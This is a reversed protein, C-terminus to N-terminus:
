TPKRAHILFSPTFIGLEGGEVLADAAVNLTRAAESAGAPAIRIRELARTLLATFARGAPIRAFSSLSFDRGQLAMYWPSAPDGHRAQQDVAEIVEFGASQVADVYEGAIALEPTANAREIRERIENHRSNSVDFADTLCWDVIAAEAGPKLLRHFERFALRRNPAHCVAEFSYLADFACDPLPVDMFDAHLLRCSGSLGARQLRNQGRRIQYDNLNVGTINAGTAQAIRILPGGVGCGIDGVEMGPGLGLLQGIQEEHRQQSARLSEGPQRPSFHFSQGWAIEYFMTVVDYYRSVSKPQESVRHTDHPSLERVEGLRQFDTLASHLGDRRM